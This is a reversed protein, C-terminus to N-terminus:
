TAQCSRTTSSSWGERRAHPRACECMAESGVGSSLWEKLTGLPVLIAEAFRELKVEPHQERLEVVYRRFADSYYHREPGESICGPHAMIFAMASHCLELAVDSNVSAPKSPPRGVPHLLAPLMQRLEHRVEYARSRSVGTAATIQEVSPGTLGHVRLYEHGLLLVAAVLIPSVAAGIEAVAAM